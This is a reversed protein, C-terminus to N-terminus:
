KYREAILGVVDQVMTEIEGLIQREFFSSVTVYFKKYLM